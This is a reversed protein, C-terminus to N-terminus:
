GDLQPRSQHKVTLDDKLLRTAAAVTAVTDLAASISLRPVRRPGVLGPLLYAREGLLHHLSKIAPRVLSSRLKLPSLMAQAM